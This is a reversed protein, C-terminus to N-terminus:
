LKESEVKRQLVVGYIYHTSMEDMFWQTVDPGCTGNITCNPSYGSSDTYSIPNGNVYNWKQTPVKRSQSYNKAFKKQYCKHM